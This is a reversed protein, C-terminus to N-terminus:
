DADEVDDLGIIGGIDEVIEIAALLVVALGEEWVADWMRVKVQTIKKQDM